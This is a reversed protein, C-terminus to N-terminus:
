YNVAKGKQCLHIQNSVELKRSSIQKDNEYTDFAKSSIRNGTPITM